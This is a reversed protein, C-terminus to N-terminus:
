SLTNVYTYRPYHKNRLIIYSCVSQGVLSLTHIYAYRPYYIFIHIGLNIYSYLCVSLSSISLSLCFYLCLFHYFFLSLFFSLFFSLIFIDFTITQFKSRASFLKLPSVLNFYPHGFITLGHRRRGCNGSLIVSGDFPHPRTCPHLAGSLIM